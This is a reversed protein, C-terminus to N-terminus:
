NHCLSSQGESDLINVIQDKGPFTQSSKSYDVLCLSKLTPKFLEPDIFSDRDLCLCWFTIM